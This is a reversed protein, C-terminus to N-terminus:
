EYYRKFDEYTSEIRKTDQEADSKLTSTFANFNAGHQM